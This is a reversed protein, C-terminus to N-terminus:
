GTSLVVHDFPRFPGHFIYSGAASDLKAILEALANLKLQLKPRTRRMLAFRQWRFLSIILLLLRILCVLQGMM